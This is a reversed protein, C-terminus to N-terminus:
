SLPTSARALLIGNVWDWTGYSPGGQRRARTHGYGYGNGDVTSTSSGVFCERRVRVIASNSGSGGEREVM